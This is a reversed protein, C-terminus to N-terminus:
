ALQQECAGADPVEVYEAPDELEGVYLGQGAGLRGHGLVEQRDPDSIVIAARDLQVKHFLTKAKGQDRAAFEVPAHPGYRFHQDVRGAGKAGPRCVDHVGVARGLGLVNRDPDRHPELIALSCLFLLRQRLERGLRDM